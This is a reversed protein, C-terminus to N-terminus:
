RFDFATGTHCRVGREDLVFEVSTACAGKPLPESQYVAAQLKGAKQKM